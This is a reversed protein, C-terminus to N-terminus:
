SSSLRIRGASQRLEVRCKDRVNAIRSESTADGVRKASKTVNRGVSRRSKEAFYGFVGRAAAAAFGGDRPSFCRPDIPRQVPGRAAFLALKGTDDAAEIDEAGVAAADVARQQIKFVLAHLQEFEIEEVVM